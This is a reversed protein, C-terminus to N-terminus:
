TNSLSLCSEVLSITISNLLADLLTPKKTPKVSPQNAGVSRTTTPLTYSFITNNQAM